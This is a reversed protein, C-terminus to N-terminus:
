NVSIIIENNNLKVSLDLWSEMEKARKELKEFDLKSEEGNKITIEKECFQIDINELVYKPKCCDYIKTPELTDILALLFSFPEKEISLKKIGKGDLILDCLRNEKYKKVDKDNEKVRWMNHTAIAYSAIAYFKELDKGWYLNNNVEGEGKMKERNKVLYNYLYIGATIGHDIKGEKLRFIFYKEINNVLIKENCSLNCLLEYSYKNLKNSIKFHAYFSEISCIEPYEKKNKEIFYMFDHVLSTLFWVFHFEDHNDRIFKIKDKMGLKEYFICGLFYVSNTHIAREFNQLKKGVRFMSVAKNKGAVTLYKKIFSMHKKECDWNKCLNEKIGKDRAYYDWEYKSDKIMKFLNDVFKEKYLINVSRQLEKAM